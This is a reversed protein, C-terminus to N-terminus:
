SATLIHLLYLQAMAVITAICVALSKRWHCVLELIALTLFNGAFKASVFGAIQDLGCEPGSDLCMLWRGVPNLEMEPLCEVYKITLFIDYASVLGITLKLVLLTVPSHVVRKYRALGAQLIRSSM